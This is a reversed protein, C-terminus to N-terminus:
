TSVAQQLNIHAARSDLCFGEEAKDLRGL